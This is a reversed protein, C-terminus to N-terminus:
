SFIVDGEWLHESEAVEEFEPVENCVEILVKISLEVDSSIWVSDNIVLM